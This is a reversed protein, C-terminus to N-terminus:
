KLGVAKLIKDLLTDKGNSWNMGYFWICACDNELKLYVMRDKLKREFDVTQMGKNIHGQVLDFFEFEDNMMFQQNTGCKSGRLESRSHVLFM